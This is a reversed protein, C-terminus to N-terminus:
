GGTDADITFGAHYKGNEDVAITDDHKDLKLAGRKKLHSLFVNRGQVITGMPIVGRILVYGENLLRRRVAAYNGATYDATSDTMEVMSSSEVLNHSTSTQTSSDCDDGGEYGDDNTVNNTTIVRQKKSQQSSFNDRQRKVSFL